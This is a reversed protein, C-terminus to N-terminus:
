KQKSLIMKFEKSRLSTTLILSDTTMLSVAYDADLSGNRQLIIQDDIEFEYSEEMGTMNTLLKGDEKFHFYLGTMSETAQGNRFASAIEWQGLLDAEQINNDNICSCVTVVLFLLAYSHISFFLKM